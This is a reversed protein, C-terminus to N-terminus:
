ENLILSELATGDAFNIAVRRYYDSQEKQKKHSEILSLQYNVEGFMLNFVETERLEKLMKEAELRKGADYAWKSLLLKGIIRLIDKEPDSEPIEAEKSNLIEKLGSYGVIKMAEPGEIWLQYLANLYTRYRNGPSILLKELRHMPDEFRGKVRAEKFFKPDVAKPLHIRGMEYLWGSTRYIQIKEEFLNKFVLEKRLDELWELYEEPKACVYLKPLVSQIRTEFIRKDMYVLGILAALWLLLGLYWHGNWIQLGASVMFVLLALQRVWKKM